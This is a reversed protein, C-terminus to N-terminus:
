AGGCCGCDCDPTVLVRPDLTSRYRNLMEHFALDCGKAGSLDQPLGGAVHNSPVALLPPEDKFPLLHVRSSYKSLANVLVQYVMWLTAPSFQGARWFHELSTGPGVNTSCFYAEDMGLQGAESGLVWDITAGCEAMAWVKDLGPTPNLLVYGGSNVGTKKMASVADLLHRRAHGKRLVKMRLHDDQTEVGIRITLSKGVSGLIEMLPRLSAETILEARSEIVLRRVERNKAIHKVIRQRLGAPNALDALFSGANFIMVTHIGSGDSALAEFNKLFLDFQEDETPMRGGFFEARYGSAAYPLSCFTCLDNRKGGREGWDPCGQPLYFIAAKVMKREVVDWWLRTGGQLFLYKDALKM